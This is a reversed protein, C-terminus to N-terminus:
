AKNGDREIKKMKSFNKVLKKFYMISERDAVSLEDARFALSLDPKIETVDEELFIELDINMYDAIRELHILPVERKGNEYYSIVERKIRCCAALEEQSLNMKKRFIKINNGITTTM